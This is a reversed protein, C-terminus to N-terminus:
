VPTKSPRHDCTARWARVGHSDLSVPVRRFRSSARGIERALARTRSPHGDCLLTISGGDGGAGNVKWGLAGHARAIDIVARAETGVLAPHLSAQADTSAVMARGLAPFNGSALADRSLLATTRLAQM